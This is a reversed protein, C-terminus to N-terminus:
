LSILKGTAKLEAISKNLNEQDEKFKKKASEKKMKMEAKVKAKYEKEMQKELPSLKSFRQIIM